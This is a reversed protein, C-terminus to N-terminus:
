LASNSAGGAAYKFRSDDFTLVGTLEATTNNPGACVAGIYITHNNDHLPDNTAPPVEDADDRAYMYCTFGSPVTPFLEPFLSKLATAGSGVPSAPYPAALYTNWKKMIVTSSFFARAQQMTGETVDQVTLNHIQKGSDRVDKGAVNIAFAVALAVLVVMSLVIVLAIGRHKRPRNTDM